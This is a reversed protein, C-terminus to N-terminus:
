QITHWAWRAGGRDSVREYKGLEGLALTMKEDQGENEAEAQFLLFILSGTVM